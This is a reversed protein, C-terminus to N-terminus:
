ITYAVSLDSTALDDVVIRMSPFKAATVREIDENPGVILVNPTMGTAYTFHNSLDLVRRALDNSAM